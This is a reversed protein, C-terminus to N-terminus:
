RVYYAGTATARSAGIESALSLNLSQVTMNHPLEELLYLAGLPVSLTWTGALVRGPLQDGMAGAYVGLLAPATFSASANWYTKLSNIQQWRTGQRYFFERETPLSDFPIASELRPLAVSGKLDLAPAFKAGYEGDPPQNAYKQYTGAAVSQWTLACSQKSTECAVATLVWGGKHTPLDQIAVWIARAATAAKAQPARQAWLADRSVLYAQEPPIPPPRNKAELNAQWPKYAFEYGLYGFGGIVILWMVLNSGGSRRQPPLPRLLASEAPPFALASEMSVIASLPELWDPIEGFERDVVIRTRVNSRRQTEIIQAAQDHTAVGDIDPDPEANTACCIAVETASIPYVYVVPAGDDGKQAYSAAFWAAFSYVMKKRPPERTLFGFYDAGQARARVRLYRKAGNARAIRRLGADTSGGGDLPVIWKLGVAATVAGIEVMVPAGTAPERRPRSAPLRLRM